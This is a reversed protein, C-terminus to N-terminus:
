IMFGSIVKDTLIYIQIHVFVYIHIFGIHTSDAHTHMRAHCSIWDSLQQM